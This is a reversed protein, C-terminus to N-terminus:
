SVQRCVTRNQPNAVSLDTARLDVSQTCQIAAYAAVIYIILTLMRIVTSRLLTIKEQGSRTKYREFHAVIHFVFPLVVISFIVLIPVLLGQANITQRVLQHPPLPPLLPSPHLSPPLCSFKLFCSLNHFHILFDLDDMANTSSIVHLFFHISLSQTFIQHAHM